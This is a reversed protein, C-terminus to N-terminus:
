SILTPDQAKKEANKKSDDPNPDKPKQNGLDEDTVTQVIQDKPEEIEDLGELKRIENIEKFTTMSNDAPPKKNKFTQINFEKFLNM